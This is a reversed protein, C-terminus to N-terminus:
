FTLVFSVLEMLLMFFLAIGLSQPVQHIRRPISTGITAVPAHAVMLTTQLLVMALLSKERRAVSIDGIEYHPAPYIYDSNLM